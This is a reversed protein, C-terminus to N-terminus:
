RVGEVIKGIVIGALIVLVAIGFHRLYARRVAQGEVTWEGEHLFHWPGWLRRQPRRVYRPDHWRPLTLAGYLGWIVLMGAPIYFGM